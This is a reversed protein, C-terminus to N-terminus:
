IKVRIKLDKKRNMESAIDLIRNFGEKTLHKGEKMLRVVKAFKERESASIWELRLREPDIGFQELVRELLLFRREAKFNGTLYHCDNPHYEGDLVSDAGKRIMRNLTLLIWLCTDLITFLSNITKAPLRKKIMAASIAEEEM